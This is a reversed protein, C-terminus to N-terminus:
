FCNCSFTTASIGADCNATCTVCLSSSCTDDACTPAGNCATPITECMENVQHEACGAGGDVDAGCAITGAPCVGGDYNSIPSCSATSGTTFTVCAEGATCTSGDGCPIQVDPTPATDALDSSDDHTSTDHSGTADLATGADDGGAGSSSSSSCAVVLGTSSASALCLIFLGSRLKM